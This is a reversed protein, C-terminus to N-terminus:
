GAFNPRQYAAAFNIKWVFTLQSLIHLIRSPPYLFQQDILVPIAVAPQLCPSFRRAFIAHQGAIIEIRAAKRRIFRIRSTM